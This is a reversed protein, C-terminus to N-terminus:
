EESFIMFILLIIVGITICSDAINFTPWHYSGFQFDLFDIVYGLRIRDVINGVAGGGIMTVAIPVIWRSEPQSRYIYFLLIFAVISVVAFVYSRAPDPLQGFIGFAAGRNEVLTFHFFSPIVTISAYKTLTATALYKTAQDALLIFTGLTVLILTKRRNIQM